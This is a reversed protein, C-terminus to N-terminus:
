SMSLDLCYAIRKEGVLVTYASTLPDDPDCEFPRVESEGELQNICSAINLKVTTPDPLHVITNGTIDYQKGPEIYVETTTVPVIEITSYEFLYDRIIREM